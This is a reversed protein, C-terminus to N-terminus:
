VLIDVLFNIICSSYDTFKDIFSLSLTVTKRARASRYVAFQNNVICVSSYSTATYMYVINAATIYVHFIGRTVQIKETYGSLQLSTYVGLFVLLM